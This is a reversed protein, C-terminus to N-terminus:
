EKQAPADTADLHRLTVDTDPSVIHLTEYLERGHSSILRRRAIRRLGCLLNVHITASFEGVPEGRAHWGSSVRKWTM